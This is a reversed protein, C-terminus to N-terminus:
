TRRRKAASPSSPNSNATLVKDTVRSRKRKDPGEKSGLDSNNKEKDKSSKETAKGLSGSSSFVDDAGNHPDVDEKMEEKMEEEIIVKGERVEQIIEEPLIFNREPNPFPLIESEHLAQMDYMTSLHDWIVKSPVQRGINQSFKDRICIMHFHRNVGASPLPRSTPSPYALQYPLFSLYPAVSLFRATTALTYLPLPPPHLLYSTRPYSTPSSFAPTQLPPTVLPCPDPHVHPSSDAPIPPQVCSPPLTPHPYPISPPLTPLLQPSSGLAEVQSRAGTLLGTTSPSLQLMRPQPPYSGKLKKTAKSPIGSPSSLLVLAAM